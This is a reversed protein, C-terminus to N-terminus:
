KSGSKRSSSRKAAKRAARAAAKRTQRAAERRRWNSESAGPHRREWVRRREEEKERELIAKRKYHEKREKRTMRITQGSSERHPSVAMKQELFAGELGLEEIAANSLNAVNGWKFPQGEREAQFMGQLFKSGAILAPLRKPRRVPPPPVVYPVGRMEAMKAEAYVRSNYNRLAKKYEESSM